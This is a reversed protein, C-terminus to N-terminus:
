PMPKADKVPASAWTALSTESPPVFRSIASRRKRDGCVTLLWRRCMKALSAMLERVSSARMTASCSMAVFREAGEAHSRAWRMSRDSILRLWDPGDLRRAHHLGLRRVRAGDGPADEQRPRDRGCDRTCSPAM